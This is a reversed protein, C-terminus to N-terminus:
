QVPAAQVVVPQQQAVVVPQQQAVVVPQGQAVATVPVAQQVVVIKQAKKNKRCCCCYVICCICICVFLVILVIILFLGRIWDECLVAPDKEFCFKNGGHLIVADVPEVEDKESHIHLCHGEAGNEDGM